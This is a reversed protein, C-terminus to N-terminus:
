DNEVVPHAQDWQGDFVFESLAKRTREAQESERFNEPLQGIDGAYGMACATMAHWGDPIGYTERAKDQDIGAMQHVFLGMATAQLALKSMALGLDHEAVRNPKGNRSFDECVATLILVPANKAWAQNAEALCGLAKGFAKEDVKKAVVLAWPQENYSSESWRFAELITRLKQDEVPRDSFARPSWRRKIVDLIPHNANAPKEM